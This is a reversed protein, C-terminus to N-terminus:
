YFSEEALNSIASKVEKLKAIQNEIMEKNEQREQELQEIIAKKENLESEFSASVDEVMMQIQENIAQPLNSSLENKIRPIVESSVAQKIKQAQMYKSAFNIIDPLFVIVLEAAVGVVGTSIALVSTVTRYATLATAIQSEKKSQNTADAQKADQNEDGKEDKKLRTQIANIAKGTISFAQEVKGTISKVWEDDMGFDKMSDNLSHLTDTEFRRIVDHGVSQFERSLKFSLGDRIITVIMEQFLQNNKNALYTGLEDAHNNLQTGIYDVCRKAINEGHSNKIDSIMRTKQNEIDLVARALTAITEQNLETSNKLTNIKININNIANDAQNKVLDKFNKDIIQNPNISTFVKSLEDKDNNGIAIIEHPYAFSLEVQDAIYAKLDAVQEPSRLNAKSLLIHFERGLNDFESLQRMMSQTINGEESSTVVIFHAGKPLYYNIAKNHNALSSGFGPMDVLILPEIRQLQESNLYIKLHSFEQARAKIDAFETLEFRTVSEDKLGFAEVFEEKGYHLEAALDTEPNISTPLIEAGLFTNLLTSKGASFGGVVPILLEKTRIDEALVEIENTPMDITQLQAKLEDLFNVLKKQSQLYM